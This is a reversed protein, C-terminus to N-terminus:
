HEITKINYIKRSIKRKLRAKKKTKLLYFSIQKILFIYKINLDFASKKLIIEEKEFPDFFFHNIPKILLNLFFKFNKIKKILYLNTVRIKLLFLLKKFFRMQLTKLKMSKKM